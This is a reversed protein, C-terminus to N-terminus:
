GTSPCRREVVAGTRQSMRYSPALDRVEVTCLVGATAPGAPLHRHLLALVAESLREKLRGTRGPLLGVEVHVFPTQGGNRPGIYTEAAPRLFTKCVGQSRAAEIVMAHLEAVLSPGDFVDALQPSYDITLHPM